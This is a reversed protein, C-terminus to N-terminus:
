AAKRYLGHDLRIVNGSKQLDNLYKEATPKKIGLTKSIEIYTSKQFDEKPLSNLLLKKKGIIGETQDQMSTEYVIKVHELLTDVILLAARHDRDDIILKEPLIETSEYARLTTLIMAIKYYMVCTRRVNAILTEDFERHFQKQKETFFDFTELRQQESLRITTINAAENAKYMSLVKKSAEDFIEELNDTGELFQDKWIMESQFYYIMFRSYLGSEISGVIKSLQSPTTSMVLALFCKDITFSEAKNKRNVSLSENEFAKLLINLSNSWENKFMTALTGGETDYMVGTNKNDRLQNSLAINSSDSAIFFKKAIPMEADPAPGSKMYIAYERKFKKQLYTETQKGLAEAWKMQGKGSSPPAVFLQFLNLSKSSRSYVGRVNPFASSLVGICSLLVLDQDIGKSFHLVLQQLFDPLLNYVEIPITPAINSSETVTAEEINANIVADYKLLSPSEIPNPNDLTWSGFQDTNKYASNISDNKEPLDCWDLMSEMALFPLGFRNCYNALLFIFNNRNGKAYEHKKCTLSFARDYIASCLMHNVNESKKTLERNNLTSSIPSTVSFVKSNPAHYVHPDYSM